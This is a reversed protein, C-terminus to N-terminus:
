CMRHGRKWKRRLVSPGPFASADTEDRWTHELIVDLNRVVADTIGGDKLHLNLELLSLDIIGCYVVM